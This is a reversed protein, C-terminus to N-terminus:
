FSQMKVEQGNKFKVNIGKQGVVMYEVLNSFVAADFQTVKGGMAEMDYIFADFESQHKKKNFILQKKKESESKKENYLDVMMNYKEMFAIQDQDVKCNEELAMQMRDELAKIELEIMRVEKELEKTDCLIDRMLKTNDILEDKETIIENVAQIFIDEIQSEMLNPTRCKREGEFKNNCQFVVKKYKDTSHWTKSGYFCGCDACKIKSSFINNGSYRPIGKRREMEAQVEDFVAPEIIAEHHYMGAFEWGDHNSIYNTYYDLTAPIATIRAEM